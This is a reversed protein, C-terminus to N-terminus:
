FKISYTYIILAVSESECDEFDDPLLEFELWGIDGLLFGWSFWGQVDVIWGKSGILCTDSVCDFWIFKDLSIVKIMKLSSMGHLSWHFLKFKERGLLWIKTM